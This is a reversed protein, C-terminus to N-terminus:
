DLDCLAVSGISSGPLYSDSLLLQECTLFTIGTLDSVSLVFRLMFM